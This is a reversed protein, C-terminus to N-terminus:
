NRSIEIQEPRSAEIRPGNRDEIFGRVTLRSKELASRTVGAEAFAREHRKLITVTLAESWRRGFNVYITGGSERVSVVEGHVVAFRGVDSLLERGQAARRVSAVPDAWLGLKADRAKREATSLSRACASTGIRVGLRAQGTTLLEHQILSKGDALAAFAPVRRYRDPGAEARRLTVPRGQILDHLHNQDGSPVEIGALLIERGDQLLFSRGDVARAVVGGEVAEDGCVAVDDARANATLAAAIACALLTIRM